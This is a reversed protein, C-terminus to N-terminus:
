TRYLWRALDLNHKFYSAPPTGAANYVFLPIDLEYMSGHSRYTAPLETNSEEMEGFVTNKDGFVCLDGIRPGYQDFKAEAEERTIVSEVGKLGMLADVTKQKDEPRNLYVWASGGLGLHHKFYRDREPSISKRIPAGLAALTKDLDYAHTKHNMGHDATLLFAADPAAECAEGLLKDVTNLHEKSEAAEPAWTHMPYDTTHVYLCQLDPRNKLLYIAARVTWYNIERSYIPPAPGLRDIWEAPPEEPTLAISTGRSLLSITKKKSSLLASSVGLKGARDFLTPALLLDASEMFEEQGTRMDLYSNGTIGHVKPPVGCCISSNNANTVSPVMGQVQKYLGERQWSRLTPMESQELYHPGFGDFM